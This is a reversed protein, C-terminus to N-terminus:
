TPFKPFKPFKLTAPRRPVEQLSYAKIKNGLGIGRGEQFSPFSLFATLSRARLTASMHSREANGAPAGFADVRKCARSAGRCVPPRLRPRRASDAM